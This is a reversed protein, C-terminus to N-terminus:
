EIEPSERIRQIRQVLLLSPFVLIDIMVVVPCVLLAVCETSCRVLFVRCWSVDEGGARERNDTFGNRSVLHIRSSHEM